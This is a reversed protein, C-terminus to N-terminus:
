KSGKKLKRIELKAKERAVARIHEPSKNYVKYDEDNLYLSILVTPM